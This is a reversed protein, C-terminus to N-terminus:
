PTAAATVPETRIVLHDHSPVVQHGPPVVLFTPDDWDGDVWRQLLRLDGEVEEFQWGRQTCLHQVQERLHLPKAFDFDILVGHTYNALWHQMVEALHKANDEGYKEVWQRYTNDDGPNAGPRTPLLAPHNSPASDGRRRLCEVWGSTYYYAGPLTESLTQYRNRSGLFFTICDHARPIVLPTHRAQLGNIINGCLAYGVLIADYRNAPIADIRAQLKDRGPLPHDHLGQTVFDLDVIHPSRSVVHCIERLAIECAVVKFFRNNM